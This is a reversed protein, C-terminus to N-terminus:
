PTNSPFGRVLTYLVPSNKLPNGKLDKVTVQVFVTDFADTLVRVRRSALGSADTTDLATRPTRVLFRKSDDVLAILSDPQTAGDGRFAIRTIDYHVVIFPVPVRTEKRMGSVSVDLAPSALGVFISDANISDSVAVHALSDPQPIVQLTFLPTQLATGVQGIISVARISDSAVLIGTGDIKIGTDFSTVLFRAPIGPLTDDARGFAYVRLPAVHGASDRLTDGAAVTASPSVVNSIYAVGDQFTPIDGCALATAIAVVTAGVAVRLKPRM